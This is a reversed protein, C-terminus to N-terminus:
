GFFGPVLGDAVHVVDASPCLVMGNPDAFGAGGSSGRVGIGDVEDVGAEHLLHPEAEPEVAAVSGPIIADEIFAM